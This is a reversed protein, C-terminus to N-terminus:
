NLNKMGPTIITLGTVMISYETKTKYHMPDISEIHFTGFHTQKIPAKEKKTAFDVYFIEVMQGNQVEIRSGRGICIVNIKM